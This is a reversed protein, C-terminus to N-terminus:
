KYIVFFISLIEMSLEIHTIVSANMHFQFVKLLQTYPNGPSLYPIEIFKYTYQRESPMTLKKKKKNKRLILYQKMWYYSTSVIFTMDKWVSVLSLIICYFMSRSRSSFLNSYLTNGVFHANRVLSHVVENGQRGVHLM